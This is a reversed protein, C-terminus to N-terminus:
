VKTNNPDDMKPNVKYCEHCKACFEDTSCKLLAGGNLGYGRSTPIIDIIVDCECDICKGEWTITSKEPNAKFMRKLIEIM